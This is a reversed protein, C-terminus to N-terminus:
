WEGNIVRLIRSIMASYTYHERVIESAANLRALADLPKESLSLNTLVKTDSHFLLSDGFIHTADLNSIPPMGSSVAKFLRCPYYSNQAQWNGVIAAGLRSGRVYDRSALESVGKRGWRNGGIRKFSVGHEKLIQSYERLRTKNGQGEPNDWISGVFYETQNEQRKINFPDFNERFIPTGWPLFLTRINQAFLCISGQSDLSGFADGTFEQMYYSNEYEWLQKGVGQSKDLNLTFYKAGSKLQLHSYQRDTAIILDGSEIAAVSSPHDTVWIVELGGHLFNDQLGFYIHKFSDNGNKLGWLIVKM